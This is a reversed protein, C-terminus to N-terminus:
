LLPNYDRQLKDGRHPMQQRATLPNEDSCVPGPDPALRMTHCTEPGRGGGLPVQSQDSDPCGNPAQGRGGKREPQSMQM